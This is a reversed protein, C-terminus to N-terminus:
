RQTPSKMGLAEADVGRLEAEVGELIFAMRLRM